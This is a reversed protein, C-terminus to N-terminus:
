YEFLKDLADVLESDMKETAHTYIRLTTNESSHGVQKQISKLNVKEEALATICSHRLEHWTIDKLEAEKLCPKFFRNVLNRSDIYNGAENSFVLNLNSPKAKLKHEKLLHALKPSIKVTRISSNTKPKGLVGKSYTKNVSITNSNFDIDDWTLALVEGQRMGTVISTLLVLYLNENKVKAVEFLKNCEEATLFVSEKVDKPMKSVKKVPNKAIVDSDVMYEFIAGCLFIIHNITENSLKKDTLEEIIGNNTSKIHKCRTNNLQNVFDEVDFKTINCLTKEGFYPLIHNNLYGIYGNKTSERCKREVVNQMYLESAQAFTMNENQKMYTGAEIEAKVRLEDKKALTKSTFCKTYDINLKKNRIRVVWKNTDPRFSIGM